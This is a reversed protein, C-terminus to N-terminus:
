RNFKGFLNRRSEKRKLLCGDKGSKKRCDELPLPEWLSLRQRIRRFISLAEPVPANTGSAPFMSTERRMRKGSALFACECCDGDYLRFMNALSLIADANVSGGFAYGELPVGGIAGSEMSLVSIIGEEHAVSGLGSPIGTGLNIIGGPNELLELAARRAIMKRIGMPLPALESLESRSQGCLEPRYHHAYGQDFASPEVPVLYDVMIGPVTVRRPNLSGRPRIEPVEAIVIGGTNRTAAALDLTIDGIAEREATLNGDVDALPGRIFCVDIPFPKYALQYKDGIQILEVIERKQQRAKQNLRCGDLRPDAYTELGVHTVAAARHGAAALYLNLLSGLPVGYGAIQEKAVMEGIRASFGIQSSIVTEILGEVALLNLGKEERTNNGPCIGCTVTLGKPASEADFRQRLARLLNEPAGYAGFGSVALTCGDRVFAAAQNPSIITPM